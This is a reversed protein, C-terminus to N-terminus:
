THHASGYLIEHSKPGCNFLLDFASLDHVFDGWLQPYVPSPPGFFRLTIGAEGFLKANLHKKAGDQALYDNAGVKRCLQILLENGKGHIGLDSQMMIPTYIGLHKKLYEIIMLNLEVLREFRGSFM